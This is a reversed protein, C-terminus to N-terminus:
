LDERFAIVPDPAPEGIPVFAPHGCARKAFIRAPRGAM